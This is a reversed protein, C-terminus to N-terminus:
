AAAEVEAYVRAVAPRAGVRTVWQAVSAPVELDDLTVVKSMAPYLQIDAVSFSRALYERGDALLQELLALRGPLRGQMRAM